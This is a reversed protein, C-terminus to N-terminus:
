KIRYVVIRQHIDTYLEGDVFKSYLDEFYTDLIYRDVDLYEMITSDIGSCTLFDEKEDYLYASVLDTAYAVRYTKGDLIFTQRDDTRQVVSDIHVGEIAEIIDNDLVAGKLDEDLKEDVIYIDHMVSMVYDINPMLMIFTEIPNFM